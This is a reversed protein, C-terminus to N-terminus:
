SRYIKGAREELDGAELFFGYRSFAPACKECVFAYYGDKPADTEDLLRFAQEMLDRINSEAEEMGKEAEAAEAMNICTIAQELEGGPVHTMAEMAKEYFGAAEDYQKLSVCVLAMNNYLGGMLGPDTNPNGEYIKRAKGFLKLSKENEGFANFATAINVYTTGSSITGEFDLEDLLRLAEQANAFAAEKNGTKRFHGVLENRIMLEGRKDHGLQAEELWYKLHREAGDYDRHSMYEDMKRIIRQQPVSKVSPKAGYPEECLICKPELYDEPKLLESDNGMIIEMGSDEGTACIAM